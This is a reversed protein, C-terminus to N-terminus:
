AERSRPATSQTLEAPSIGLQAALHAAVRETPQRAGSELRSLHGASM